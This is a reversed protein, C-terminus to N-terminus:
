GNPSTCMKSDYCFIINTKVTGFGLANAILPGTNRFSFLEMQGPTDVIIYEPNNYQDIEFKIDELYNIMRDAAEIVAGNPDLGTEEVINEVTVYDQIDIDPLYPLDQVAPDLNISVPTVEQNYNQIYSILANTLTTKGSGAPGIIYSILVTIIM